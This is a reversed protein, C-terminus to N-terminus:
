ASAAALAQAQRLYAFAHVERYFDVAQQLQANGDARRGNALLQEAACLRAYAEDPLSGIKAYRDAAQQFEGAAM